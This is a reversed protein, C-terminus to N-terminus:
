HLIVDSQIAVRTLYPKIQDLDCIGGTTRPWPRLKNWVLRMGRFARTSVMSSNSPIKPFGDHSQRFQNASRGLLLKGSIAPVLHGRPRLPLNAKNVDEASVACCQVLFFPRPRPPFCFGYRSEAIIVIKALPCQIIRTALTAPANVQIDSRAKVEALEEPVEIFIGDAGEPGSRDEEL